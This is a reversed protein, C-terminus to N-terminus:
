YGLGNLRIAPLPITIPDHILVAVTEALEASSQQPKVPNQQVTLTTGILIAV